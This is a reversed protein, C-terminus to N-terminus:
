PGAGFADNRHVQVTTGGVHRHDHVNCLPVVEENQFIASLGMAGFHIALLDAGKAVTGAETKVWPFVQTCITICPGHHGIAGVDGLFRPDDGVVALRLLVGMHQFAPVRAHISHM